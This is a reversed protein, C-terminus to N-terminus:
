LTGLSAFADGVDQKIEGSHMGLMRHVRGELLALNQEAIVMAGGGLNVEDLARM